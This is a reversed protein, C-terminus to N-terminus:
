RPDGPQRTRSPKFGAACEKALRALEPNMRQELGIIRSLPLEFALARMVLPNFNLESFHAAPYPNECAIAELVSRVGTQCAEIALPLFSEPQPLFPLARLIAARERHDGERYLEDALTVMQNVRLLEAAELLLTVRAADDISWSALPRDIGWARLPATEMPALELPATGLMRTASAFTVALSQRPPPWSPDRLRSTVIASFINLPTM